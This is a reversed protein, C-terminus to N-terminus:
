FWINSVVSQILCLLSSFNSMFSERRDGALKSFRGGVMTLICLLDRMETTSSANGYASIVSEASSSPFPLVLWILLGIV